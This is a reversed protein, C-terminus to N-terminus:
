KKEFQTQWYSGAEWPFRHQLPDPGLARWCLALPTVVGFTLIAVLGDGVVWRLPYALLVLTRYLCRFLGPWVTGVAFIFGALLRFILSYVADPLFWATVAVGLALVWALRRLRRRPPDWDFLFSPMPTESGKSPKWPKRQREIRLPRGGPIAPLMGVEKDPIRSSLIARRGIEPLRVQRAAFYENALSTHGRTTL